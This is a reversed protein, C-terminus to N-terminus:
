RKPPEQPNRPSSYGTLMCHQTRPWKTESYLNRLGPLTGHMQLSQRDLLLLRITTLTTEKREWLTQLPLVRHGGTLMELMEVRRLGQHTLNGYKRPRSVADCDENRFRYLLGYADNLGNPPSNKPMRQM